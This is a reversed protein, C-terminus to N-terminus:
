EGRGPRVVRLALDLTVYPGAARSGFECADCPEDREWCDCEALAGAEAYHDVMVEWADGFSDAGILLGDPAISFGGLYLGSRPTDILLTLASM